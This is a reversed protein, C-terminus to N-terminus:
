ASKAEQAEQEAKADAAKADAVFKDATAKDPLDGIVDNGDQDVVKWVLHGTTNKYEEARLEKIKQDGM